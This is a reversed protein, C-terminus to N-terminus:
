AIDFGVGSRSAAEQEGEARLTEALQHASNHTDPHREGLLQRHAALVDEQFQRARPLEPTAALDNPWPSGTPAAGRYM